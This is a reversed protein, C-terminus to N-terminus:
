GLGDPPLPGDRRIVRLDHYFLDPDPPSVGLDLDILHKGHDEVIGAKVAAAITEETADRFANLDDYSITQGFFLRQAGCDYDSIFAIQDGRNRFMYWLAITGADWNWIWERSHDARLHTGVTERKTFNCLFYSAGM